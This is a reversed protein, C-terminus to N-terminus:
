KAQAALEEFVSTFAATPRAGALVKGNVVFSPTAQVGIKTADAIDEEVEARTEENVLCAAFDDGLGLSPAIGIIADVSLTDPQAFLREHVEWFKGQRKACQAAIAATMANPHISTLPLHKFVMQVDNGYRELLERRAGDAHKKCFPCQFDSFEIVVISADERGQIANHNRVLPRWDEVNTPASPTRAGMGAIQQQLGRIQYFGGVVAALTVIQVAILTSILGNLKDGM